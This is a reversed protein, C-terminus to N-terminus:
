TARLLRAYIAAFSAALVFWPMILSRSGSRRTRRDARHLQGRRRFITVVGIDYAFLFLGVLGLWYVPASIAM